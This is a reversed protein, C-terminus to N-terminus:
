EVSLEIFYLPTPEASCCTALRLLLCLCVVALRLLFCGVAVFRMWCCGFLGLKCSVLFCSTATPWLPEVGLSRWAGWARREYGHGRTRQVDLSLNSEGSGLWIRRAFGLSM